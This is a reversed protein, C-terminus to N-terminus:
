LRKRYSDRYDPCDYIARFRVCKKRLSFCINLYFVFITFSLTFRQRKSKKISFGIPILSLHKKTYFTKLIKFIHLIIIIYIILLFIYIEVKKRWELIFIHIYYIKYNLTMSIIQLYIIFM